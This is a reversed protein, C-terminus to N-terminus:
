FNNEKACYFYTGSPLDGAGVLLEIKNNEKEILEITNGAYIGSEVLRLFYSDFDKEVLYCEPDLCLVGTVQYEDFKKMLTVSVRDKRCSYVEQWLESSGMAISVFTILILKM